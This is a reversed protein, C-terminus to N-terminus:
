TSGVIMSRRDSITKLHLVLRARWHLLHKAMKVERDGARYTHLYEDLHNWECLAVKLDHKIQECGRERPVKQLMRARRQDMERQQRLRRGHMVEILRDTYHMESPTDTPDVSPHYPPPSDWQDLESEDLNDCSALAELFLTASVPLPQEAQSVLRTPLTSPLPSSGQRGHLRRYAARNQITRSYRRYALPSDILTCELPYV